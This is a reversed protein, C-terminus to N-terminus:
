EPRQVDTFVGRRLGGLEVPLVLFLYLRHHLPQLGGPIHLRGGVRGGALVYRVSYACLRAFHPIALHPEGVKVAAVYVLALPLVHAASQAMSYAEGDLLVIYVCLGQGAQIRFFRVAFRM